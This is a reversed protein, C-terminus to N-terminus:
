SIILGLIYIVEDSTNTILLTKIRNLYTIKKNTLVDNVKQTYYTVEKTEKNTRKRQIKDGDKRSRVIFPMSIGNYCITKTGTQFYSKNKEVILIQNNPLNYIGPEEIKLYFELEKTEDETFLCSGYEKIFSLDENIQLVVKDKTSSIIKILENIMSTSLSYKKLMTFLTEKKLYENLTNFDSINFFINNDKKTVNNNIFNLVNEEVLNNAALLTESFYNIAEKLNQNENELHPIIHHRIRNRLYDDQDNTFDNFYKINNTNAYQEIELRSKKLLPRYLYINKYISLQEIGAYGKLSSQKLMRMIITELNDNAHHALLIYKSNTKDAVEKFFNYRANRAENEFNTLSDFKFHYVFYSLKNEKSFKEIYEEEQISEKRLGHNVHAINIQEKPLAKFVLDLLVMSDIGTSCAIVISDNKIQKKIQEIVSKMFIVM